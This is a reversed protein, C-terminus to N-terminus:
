KRRAHRINAETEATLLEDILKKNQVKLLAIENDKASLIGKIEVTVFGVEDNVETMLRGMKEIHHELVKSV